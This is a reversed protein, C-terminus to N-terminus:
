KVGDARHKDRDTKLTSANASATAANAEVLKAQNYAARALVRTNASRPSDLFSREARALAEWAKAMETPVYQTAPIASAHSCAQRADVLELPTITAACDAFLVACIICLLSTVTKM